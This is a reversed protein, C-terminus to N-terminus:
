SQSSEGGAERLLQRLGSGPHEARMFTEGILFAHYGADRLQRISEGDAIGSESVLIAGAPALPALDLSTRLDVKFSTLDRNNVGIITAGANAARHMEEATHVEVLADLHLEAAKALLRSLLADDLIAVILLVADAGAERGEYLQYEDFLFDKRLLPTEIVGRITRLHDLSGGFYDEECLVSMAAAGAEMYGQAIRLPDFDERIIGKSPSRQKIEAIVNIRDARKLSEAFARSPRTVQQCRAKLEDLPLQAMAQGLRAAKADVIRDLIGGASLVGATRQETSSALSRKEKV